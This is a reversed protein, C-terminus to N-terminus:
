AGMRPLDDEAAGTEDELMRYKADEGHPGWYGDRLSRVFFFVTLGALLFFLFYAFFISPYMYDAM